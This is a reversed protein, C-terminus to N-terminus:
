LRVATSSGSTIIFSRKKTYHSFNVSKSRFVLHYNGPQLTLTKRLERSDLACVWEMKGDIKVFLDCPGYTPKFVTVLGPRPVEILTTASAKIQINDIKIRPLTLLELSYDGILYKQSYDIAQVNITEDGKKVVCSLKKLLNTRQSTIKLKGQVAKFGVISHKGPEIRVSDAHLKPLTHVTIDYPILPDLFLTDPLGMSNMTHMYQYRLKGTTHNYFTMPVNSETPKDNEDLLNVQMSTKDLVQSIVYNLTGGFNKEKNVELFEGVCEFSKQFKKDLGIGIIFPELIIGKKQLDKSVACPDGDCAEVGDTILIVINRVLEKSKPFDTAAKSLAYAIPTTGRANLYRLTQRIVGANDLSFPVELKTDECDQPPFSSQHGYVRLAMEVNNELELSDIMEILFDRAVNMKTSKEWRGNMSQSADFIFLIRTKNKVTRM